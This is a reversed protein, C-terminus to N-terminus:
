QVEAADPRYRALLELDRIHEMVRTAGDRGVCLTREYGYYEMDYDWEAVLYGVEDNALGVLMTPAGSFAKIRLGLDPAIEGPVSVVTLDGVKWLNVETELYGSGYMQRDVLGTFLAASYIWNRNKLYVPTHWVQIDPDSRYRGLGRVVELSHDALRDGIRNCEDWVTQDPQRWDVPAVLAGLAGSVYIGVGGLEEELRKVTRGPFDATIQKNGSWIAEPHCGLETVTAITRRMDRTRVHMVVVEPDVLGGRNGNRMLGAPDVAVRGSAVEAPVLDADAEALATLIGAKVQDLYARDVGSKFPPMGWLGITDPAHHTHTAAIIVNQPAFGQLEENIALVEGRAMGILDVAVLAVKVDDRELVIARAYLPDHVGESRRMLSFGGMYLDRTPTIDVAAAGARLTGTDAVQHHLSVAEPVKPRFLSCGAGMGAAALAVAALARSPRSVSRHSARAPRLGPRGTPPAQNSM